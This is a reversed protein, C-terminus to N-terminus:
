GPASAGQMRQMNETMHRAVENLQETPSFQVMVM